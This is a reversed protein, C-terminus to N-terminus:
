CYIIMASFRYISSAGDGGGTYKIDIVEVSNRSLWSNVESELTSPFSANIIKVKVQKSLRM